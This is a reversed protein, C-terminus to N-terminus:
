EGIIDGIDVADEDVVALIAAITAIMGADSDLLNLLRKVDETFPDVKGNVVVDRKGDRERLGNAVLNLPANLKNGVVIVLSDNFLNNHDEDVGLIKGLLKTRDDSRFLVIVLVIIVVQLALLNGLLLNKLLM